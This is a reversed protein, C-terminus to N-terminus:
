PPRNVNLLAYPAPVLGPFLPLADEFRENVLPLTQLKDEKFTAPPAAESTNLGEGDAVVTVAGSLEALELQISEVTTLGPRVTVSRTQQKFGALGVQMTYLGAALNTFRYEGLENTVTSLPTRGPTAPTLKLSAGPLSQTQGDPGSVSVTGQLSGSQAEASRISAACLSLAILLLLRAILRATNRPRLGWAVLVNNKM